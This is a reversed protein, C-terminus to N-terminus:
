HSIPFNAVLPAIAGYSERRGACSSGRYVPTPAPAPPASTSGLLTAMADEDAFVCPLGEIGGYTGASRELM